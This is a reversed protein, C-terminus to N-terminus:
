NRRPRISVQLRCSNRPSKGGEGRGDTRGEDEGEAAVEGDGRPAAPGQGEGILREDGVRAGGAGVVEGDVGRDQTVREQLEEAERAGRGADVQVRVVREGVFDGDVASGPQRDPGRVGGDPRDLGPREAPVHRDASRADEAELAGLGIGPEERGVRHM